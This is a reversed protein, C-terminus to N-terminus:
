DVFCCPVFHGYWKREHQQKRQMAMIDHYFSVALMVKEDQTAMLKEFAEHKKVNADVEEVTTGVETGSLYVQTVNRKM